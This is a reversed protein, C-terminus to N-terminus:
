KGTGACDRMTAALLKGEEFAAAELKPRVVERMVPVWDSVINWSRGDWQQFM